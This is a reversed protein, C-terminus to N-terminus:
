QARSFLGRWQGCPVASVMGQYYGGGNALLDGNLWSPITGSVTAEVPEMQAFCLFSPQPQVPANIRTIGIREFGM